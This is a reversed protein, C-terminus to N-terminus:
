VLPKLYSQNGYLQTAIPGVVKEIYAQVTARQTKQSTSPGWSLGDEYFLVGDAGAVGPGALATQMDAAELLTRHDSIYRFWVWPLVKLPKRTPGRNANVREAERTIAQVYHSNYERGLPPPSASNKYHMYTSPFIATAENFM